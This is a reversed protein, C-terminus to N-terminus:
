GVPSLDLTMSYDTTSINLSWGEVVGDRTSSGLITPLNTITVVDLPQIILIDEDTQATSPYTATLLDIMVQGIRPTTDGKATLRLTPPDTSNYLTSAICTWDESIVGLAAISTSDEVTFTGAPGSAVIRNVFIADDSILTLGGSGDLDYQSDLTLTSAYSRYGSGRFNLYGAGQVYVIGRETDAIENLVDLLPREQTTQGALTLGSDGSVTAAPSGSPYIFAVLKAVRTPIDDGNDGDDCANHFDAADTSAPASTKIAITSLYGRFGDSGATIPTGYDLGFRSGFRSVRNTSSITLASGVTSTARQVGDVYLKVIKGTSDTTVSFSHWTDDNYGNGSYISVTTPSAGDSVIDLKVAGNTDMWVDLRGVNTGSARYLNYINQRYSNDSTRFWGFVGGGAGPNWTRPTSLGRGIQTSTNPALKVSGSGFPPAETTWQYTGDSTTAWSLSGASTDRWASYQANSVASISSSLPYVVGNGYILTRAREVGYPGLPNKALLKGMDSATVTTFAQGGSDVTATWADVYGTFIVRAPSFDTISVRIQTNRVIYGNYTSSTNGPTFNGSFNDFTLSLTGPGSTDFRTGRGRNITIGADLRVYTSVDVWSTTYIEVKVGPLATAM